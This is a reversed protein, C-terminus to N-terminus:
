FHFDMLDLIVAFGNYSGHVVMAIVLYPFAIAIRPRGRRRWVDQWMRILGMGAILTCGMHLFVCITWRWQALGEPGDPVYVYLYLINEIVAFVGAGALVCILIQVPSRFLFPRKEILILATGVKLMEEIVPGFIIIAGIGFATSGGSVLPNIFAGLIAWPGALLSVGLTVLWTTGASTERQRTELWTPYTLEGVPTEGALEKSLGPEDWVTHEVQENESAPARSPGETKRQVNHESADTEFDSGQLHPEHSISPDHSPKKM